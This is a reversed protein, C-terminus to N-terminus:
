VAISTDGAAIKKLKSDAALFSEQIGPDSIRYTDWFELKATSQLYSRAREPNDIGPLEVLILDRAKDLSVNPQVVGLKDIRDKLRKFTLDVTETAKARLVNIVDADSTEYTIEERLTANRSFIPGLKQGNSVKAWEAAFLNVYDTQANKLAKDANDLALKFAPEKTGNSLNELFERLDVQLVTSIGGKLDLGLAIQQQKLKEYSFSGLLPIKIVPESSMSDLYNARAMKYAMSKASEDTLSSTAAQAFEDANKEVKRTPFLYLYQLLCVVTLLILFFRIIGKGQM